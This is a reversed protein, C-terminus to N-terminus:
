PAVNRCQRRLNCNGKGTIAEFFLSAIRCYHSEELDAFSLRKEPYHVIVEELVEHSATAARLKQSDARGHIGIDTQKCQAEVWELMKILNALRVPSRKRLYDRTQPEIEFVSGPMVGPALLPGSGPMVGRAPLPGFSEPSFLMTRLPEPIKELMKKYKTTRERIEKLREKNVSRNGIFPPPKACLKIVLKRVSPEVAPAELIKMIEAVIEDTSRKPAPARM